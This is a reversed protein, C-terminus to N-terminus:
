IVNSGEPLNTFQKEFRIESWEDWRRVESIYSHCRFVSNHANKADFLCRVPHFELQHVLQLVVNRLLGPIAYSPTLVSRKNDATLLVSVACLNECREDEKDM